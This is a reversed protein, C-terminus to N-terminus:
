SKQPVTRYLAEISSCIFILHAAEEETKGQFFDYECKPVANPSATETFVLADLSISLEKALLCVTEFRPNSQHTEAQLRTRYSMGMKDALQSQSLSRDECHVRLLNRFEDVPSNV